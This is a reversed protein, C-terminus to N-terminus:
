GEPPQLPAALLELPLRRGPRPHCDQLRVNVLLCNTLLPEFAATQDRLTVFWWFCVCTSPNCCTVTDPYAHLNKVTDATKNAVTTAASKIGTGVTVAASKVASGVSAFFSSMETGFPLDM